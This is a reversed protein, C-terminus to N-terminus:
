ATLRFGRPLKVHRGEDLVPQLSQLIEGWCAQCLDTEAAQPGAVLSYTEIDGSDEPSEKKCRDCVWVVHTRSVM